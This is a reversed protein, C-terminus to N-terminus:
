LLLLLRYIYLIIYSSRIYMNYIHINYYLTHLFFVRTLFRTLVRTLIRTLIVRAWHCSRPAPPPLLSSSPAGRAFCSVFSITNNNNNHYLLFTSYFSPTHSSTTESCCLGPVVKTYDNAVDGIAIVDRDVDDSDQIVHEHCLINTSLKKIMPFFCLGPLKTTPKVPPSLCIEKDQILM